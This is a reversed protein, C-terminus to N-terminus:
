TVFLSHKLKLPVNSHCRYGLCRKQQLIQSWKDERQSYIIKITTGIFLRAILPTCLFKQLPKCTKRPSPPPRCRNPGLFVRFGFMKSIWSPALGGCGGWRHVGRCAIHRSQWFKVSRSLGVVIDEVNNNLYFNGNHILCTWRFIFLCQSNYSYEM